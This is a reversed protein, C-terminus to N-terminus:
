ARLEPRPLPDGLPARYVSTYTLVGGAPHHSWMLNTEGVRVIREGLNDEARSCALGIADRDFKASRVLTIHPTYGRPLEFGRRALETALRGQLSLLADRGEGEAVGAWIISGGRKDFRGIGSIVLDFPESDTSATALADRAAREQETTCGGLFALTLHLNGRASSRGSRLGSRLDEQARVLPRLLADEFTIACFLRRQSAGDQEQRTEM